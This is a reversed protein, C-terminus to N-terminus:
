SVLSKRISPQCQGQSSATPRWVVYQKGGATQYTMPMANGGAPLKAQWLERGTDIDFAHLESDFGGSAFVLGGATIMAGGLNISGWSKSNPLKELGPIHGLPTQWKRAGDSLSIANLSGWPPPNCPTGSQSLLVDRRM